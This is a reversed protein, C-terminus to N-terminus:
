WQVYSLCFVVAWGVWVERSCYIALRAKNIHLRQFTVDFHVLTVFTGSPEM